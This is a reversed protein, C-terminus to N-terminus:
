NEKRQSESQHLILSAQYASYSDLLIQVAQEIGLWYINDALRTLQQEFLQRSQMMANQKSDDGTIQANEEQEKASDMSSTTLLQHCAEELTMGPTAMAAQLGELLALSRKDFMRRNNQWNFTHGATELAKCWRRLTSLPLNLQKTLESSTAFVEM